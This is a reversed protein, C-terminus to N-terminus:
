EVTSFVCSDHAFRSPTIQKQTLTVNENKNLKTDTGDENRNPKTDAGRNQILEVNENRNKNQRLGEKM